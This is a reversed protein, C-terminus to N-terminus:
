FRELDFSLEDFHLSDLRMEVSTDAEDLDHSARPEAGLSKRANESAYSQRATESAYSKRATTQSSFSPRPREDTPTIPVYDDESGDSASTSGSSLGM